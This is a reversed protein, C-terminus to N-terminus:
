YLIYPKSSRFQASHIMQRMALFICVVFTLTSRVSDLPFCSCGQGLEAWTPQKESMSENHNHGQISGVRDARSPKMSVAVFNSASLLQLYLSEMYLVPLMLVTISCITSPLILM